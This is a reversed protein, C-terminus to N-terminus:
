LEMAMVGNMQGHWWVWIIMIYYFSGAFSEFNDYRLLNIQFLHSGCAYYPRQREWCVHSIITSITYWKNSKRIGTKHFFQTFYSTLSAFVWLTAVLTALLDSICCFMAYLSFRNRSHHFNLLLLLLLLWWRPLLVTIEKWHGIFLQLQFYLM